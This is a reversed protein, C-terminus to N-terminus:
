FYGEAEPWVEYTYEKMRGTWPWALEPRGEENFTINARSEGISFQKLQPLIRVAMNGALERAEASEQTVQRGYAPGDAGMYANGCGGGGDFGIGLQWVPPLTLSTLNSFRSLFALHQELKDPNKDWGAGPYLEGAMEINAISPQAGLTAELLEMWTTRPWSKSSMRLTQLSLGKTSNLLAIRSPREYKSQAPGNTDFWESVSLEVLNPCRPVLWKIHGQAVLRKLNSLTVNAEAFVAEFSAPPGLGVGWDLTELNPMRSLIKAFLNPLADAPSTNKIWKYFGREHVYAMVRFSEVAELAATCNMLEELRGATYKWDVDNLGTKTNDINLNTLLDPPLAREPTSPKVWLDSDKSCIATRVNPYHSLWGKNSELWPHATDLIIQPIKPQETWLLNILISFDQLTTPIYISANAIAAFAAFCISLRM